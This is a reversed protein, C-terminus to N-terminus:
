SLGKVCLSRLAVKPMTKVGAGTHGRRQLQDVRTLYRDRQAQYMDTFSNTTLFPANDASVKFFSRMTFRATTTPGAEITSLKTVM